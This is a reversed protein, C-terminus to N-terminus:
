DMRRLLEEVVAPRGREARAYRVVGGRGMEEVSDITQLYNGEELACTQALGPGRVAFTPGAAAPGNWKLRFLRM